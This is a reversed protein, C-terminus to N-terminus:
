LCCWRCARSKYSCMWPSTIDSSTRAGSNETLARHGVTVLPSWRHGVYVTGLQTHTYM